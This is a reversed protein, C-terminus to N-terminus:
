QRLTSQLDPRSNTASQALMLAQSTVLPRGHALANRALRLDEARSAIEHDFEAESFLFALDGIELAEVDEPQGTRRLKEVIQHRYERVIELRHMEVVPLLVSVQASWVRRQIEDPERIAALAAHVVGAKSETGLSVSPPTESTWGREQASCRLLQMPNLINEPRAKALREAMTCDWAAVRAITMVLLTLLTGQIGRMRLRYHALFVLDMEDVVGAWDYVKLAVDGDSAELSNAGMPVVFVTRRLRSVSRSAQAYKELFTQWAGCSGNQLGEIWILRGVFGDAECLDMATPDALATLEPAFQELLQHLPARASLAGSPNIEIRGWLGCDAVRVFLATEFGSPTEEPFRLIVSEGDRISREVAGLFGSPGPLHWISM